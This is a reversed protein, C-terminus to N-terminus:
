ILGAVMKVWGERGDGVKGGDRREMVEVRMKGEAVEKEEWESRM